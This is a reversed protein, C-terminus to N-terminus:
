VFRVGKEDTPGHASCFYPLNANGGGYPELAALKRRVGALRPSHYSVQGFIERGDDALGHLTHVLTSM